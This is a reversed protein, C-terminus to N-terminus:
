KRSLGNMRSPAFSIARHCSRIRAEVVRKKSQGWMYRKAVEKAWPVLRRREFGFNSLKIFIYAVADHYAEPTHLSRDHVDHYAAWRVHPLLRRYLETYADQSGNLAAAALEEDTSCVVPWSWAIRVISRCFQKWPFNRSNPLLLVKSSLPLRQAVTSAEGSQLPNCGNLVM